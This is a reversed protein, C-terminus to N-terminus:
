LKMQPRKLPQLLRNCWLPRPRICWLQIRVWVVKLLQLKKRLHPHHWLMWTVRNVVVPYRMNNCGRKLKKLIISSLKYHTASLCNPTMWFRRNIWEKNIKKSLLVRYKFNTWFVYPWRLVGVKRIHLVQIQFPISYSSSNFPCFYFSETDIISFKWVIINFPLLKFLSEPFGWHFFGYIVM